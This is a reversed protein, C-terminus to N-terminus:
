GILIDEKMYHLRRKDIGTLVVILTLVGIRGVFMLLGILVQGFASLKVTVGMSLGVTALASVVEFLIPMFPLHEVTMLVLTSAAALMGAIVMVTFAKTVSEPAIEREFIVVGKKGRVISWIALVTTGLTTTKVGGGVSGPSAGVFMMLIMLFIFPETWELVPITTFGATRTVAQFLSTVIKHTLPVSALTNSYETLFYFISGVLSIIGTVLLVLRSHLSLKHWKRVLFLEQLVVYGLSGLLVLVIVALNIGMNYRFPELSHGTLDFGAGNFASVAHFVVFMLGPILGESWVDPLLLAFLVAGVGELALTLLVISRVLRVVGSMNFYNRDQVILVRHGLHIKLGLMSLTITALVMLGLGGIQMLVLIVAHGFFTWYEATTVVTLGTVTLASTATFWAELLTASGPNTSAFPLTLLLTGVLDVLAYSIVLLQGPKINNFM